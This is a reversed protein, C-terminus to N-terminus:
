TCIDLPNCIKFILLREKLREVIRCSSKIRNFYDTKQIKFTNKKGM